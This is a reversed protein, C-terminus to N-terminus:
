LSANRYLSDDSSNRDIGFIKSTFIQIMANEIGLQAGAIKKAYFRRGFGVVRAAWKSALENKGSFILQGHRCYNNCLAVHLKQQAVAPGVFTAM